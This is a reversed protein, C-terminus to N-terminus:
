VSHFIGSEFVAQAQTVKVRRSIGSKMGIGEPVARAQQASFRGM